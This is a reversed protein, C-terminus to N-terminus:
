FGCTVQPDPLRMPLVLGALIMEDIKAITTQMAGDSAQSSTESM